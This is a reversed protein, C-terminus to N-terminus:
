VSSAGLYLLRRALDQNFAQIRAANAEVLQRRAEFDVEIRKAAMAADYVPNFPIELFSCLEQRISVQALSEYSFMVVHRCASRAEWLARDQVYLFHWDVAGGLRAFSEAVEIPQRHIIVFRAFPFLGQWLTHGLAVSTEVTGGLNRLRAVFEDVSACGLMMDHGCGLYESLWKSRSRPHCLVMYKM